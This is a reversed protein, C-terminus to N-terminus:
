NSIDYGLKEKIINKIYINMQSVRQKTVHYKDSLDKQPMGVVYLDYFVDYYRGTLYRKAIKCLKQYEVRSCTEECIDNDTGLSYSVDDLNAPHVPERSGKVLRGNREFEQLCRRMRYYAITSLEGKERDWEKIAQCLGILCQQQADEKEMGYKGHYKGAYFYALKINQKFIVTEESTLILPNM